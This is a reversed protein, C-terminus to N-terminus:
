EDDTRFPSAPLGEKNYLNAKDTNDVWAYRVAVPNNITDNWVVVENNVISANAWVFKKDPGAIAFQQLAGGKAILGTGIHTFRLIIKNGAVKMSQYRPGSYVVKNDNYAVKQAALALRKGVDEKNLPHIDNWEGLDTAVVMATNPISLTKLQAERLLAWNSEVPQPQAAMFGPLQVYLFPFNRNSTNGEWQQRWNNIMAPFLQKYEVPRSANTEGQYWIVEKIAYPLLPALMGNFLGLPQVYLTTTRPIQKTVAGVKYQWEGKLDITDGNGTLQYPKDLYFGGNGSYNIVRVIINNEGPKLLNPPITYKRPPYQYATTGVLQGNLYVSDRDVICGLFLRAPQNAMGPPVQITKRFWVVGHVDKLGQEHWYGPIQMTKWDAANYSSDLWKKEEQMGKDQQWLNGYWTNNVTNDARSISDTYSKDKFKAATAAYHPFQKLADESLWAEAPSGGVATKIIGIPIHYKEYLTKAFFYGVGTFQLVSQPSAMTWNGTAYDQLPENWETRTTINFQRINANEAAAIIAPYKDKLRDMPLEMNSQGSCIWVDGVLINKISLQNSAKIDMNYPGGAKLTPLAIRWKGEANTTTHYERNMFTISVREEPAAWGWINVKTDRQLVMNDSILRPLRVQAPVSSAIMTTLLLVLIKKM